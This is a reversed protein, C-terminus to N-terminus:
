DNPYFPLVKLGSLPVVIVRSKTGTIKKRTRNDAADYDQQSVTGNNPGGAIEAKTLRGRADYTYTTVESQAHAATACVGILPAVAIKWLTKM